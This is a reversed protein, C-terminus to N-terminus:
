LNITFNDLDLKSGGDKIAKIHDVTDAAHGCEICFPNTRLVILRVEKWAKSHYFKNSEKNRVTKDYARNNTTKCKPCRDEDKDKTWLGHIPCIRKAMVEVDRHTCTRSLDLYMNM